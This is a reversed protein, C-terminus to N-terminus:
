RANRCANIEIRKKFLASPQNGARKKNTAHNNDIVSLRRNSDAGSDFEIKLMDYSGSNGDCTWLRQSTSGTVECFKMWFSVTWTRQNGTSSTRQIYTSDARNFRLSRDVAYAKKGALFFPSPSGLSSM